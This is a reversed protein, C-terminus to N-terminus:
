CYETVVTSSIVLIDVAPIYKYMYLLRCIFQFYSYTHEDLSLM